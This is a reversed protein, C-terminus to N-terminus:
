LQELIEEARDVFRRSDTKTKQALERTVRKTVSYQAIERSDKADRLTEIDEKKMKINKFNQFHTKELLGDKVFLEELAAATATHSKSKYGAKAVLSLAAMYMAYYAVVIVWEDNSHDKPIALLDKHKEAENLIEMTVLNSKAKRLYPEALNKVTPDKALQKLQIFREIM